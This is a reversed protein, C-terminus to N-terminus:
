LNLKKMAKLQNITSIINLKTANYILQNPPTHKTYYTIMLESAKSLTMLKSGKWADGEDSTPKEFHKVEGIFSYVREGRFKMYRDKRKDTDAWSSDWDWEIVSIQRLKGNLKVGLEEMLERKAGEIPTESKDIGGGPLSLYKKADQAVLKGNYLLYCEGVPRYPLGKQIRNPNFKM